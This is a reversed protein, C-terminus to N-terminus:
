YISIYNTKTYQGQMRYGQSVWKNVRSPTQLFIGQFKKIYFFIGGSFLFLQIEKKGIWVGKIEEEKRLESALGTQIVHVLLLTLLVGLTKGIIWDKLILSAKLQLTKTETM